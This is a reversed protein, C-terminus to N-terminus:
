PLFGKEPFEIKGAGSQGDRAAMAMGRTAPGQQPLARHNAAPGGAGRRWGAYTSRKARQPEMRLLHTASGRVRSAM